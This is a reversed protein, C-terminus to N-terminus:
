LAVRQNTWDNLCGWQGGGGSARVYTNLEGRVPFEGFIEGDQPRAQCTLGPNELTGVTFVVQGTREWLRKAAEYNGNFAVTIPQNDVLWTALEDIFADGTIDVGEEPSTVDAYINRWQEDIGLQTTPTPRPTHQSADTTASGTLIGATTSTPFPTHYVSVM